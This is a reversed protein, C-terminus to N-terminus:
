KNEMRKKTVLLVIAAVMLGGGVVYFITTGIGGTSPLTAGLYNQIEFSSSSEKGNVTVTPQKSSDLKHGDSTYDSDARTAVVIEVPETLTNYGSPAEIEYLYYTVDDDLGKISIQGGEPTTMTYGASARSESAITYAGNAGAVVPILKDTQTLNGDKDLLDKLDATRSLVFKAGALKTATNNGDVKTITVKFTWDHVLSDPTKGTSESNNPNNSYTLWAKNDQHGVTSDKASENLVGSFYTHLEDGPNLVKDDQAAKVDVTVTFTNGNASVTYYKSDLIGTETAGIKITVDSNGKVNSTLESDMEDHIVYDYSSYGTTNPVTSIIRFNVTDGIQNDGVTGWDETENHQIQKTLTVQTDKATIEQNTLINLMYRSYTGGVPMADADTADEVFYYGDPLNNITCTEGSVTSTGAATKLHKSVVKAFNNLTESNSDVGKLAAALESASNKGQLETPLSTDKLLADGDVGSGFTVDSLVGTDSQKGAFVQYAKYTHGATAGKITLTHNTNDAAMAPIAMACLMAVALLAAMLKKMAKKM